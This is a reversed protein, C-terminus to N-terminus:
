RLGDLRRRASRLSRGRTPVGSWPRSRAQEEVGAIDRLSWDQATLEPDDLLGVLLGVLQRATERVARFGSGPPDLDCM